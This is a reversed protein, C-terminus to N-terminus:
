SRTPEASSPNLPDWEGSAWPTLEQKVTARIEALASALSVPERREGWEYRFISYDHPAERLAASVCWLAMTLPYSGFEESATWVSQSGLRRFSLDKESKLKGPRFRAACKVAWGAAFSRPSDGHIWPQHAGADPTQNAELSRLVSRPGQAGPREEEWLDVAMRTIAILTRRRSDVGEREIAHLWQLTETWAAEDTDPHVGSQLVRVLRNPKLGARPTRTRRYAVARRINQIAAKVQPDHVLSELRPLAAAADAGLRGLLAVTERFRDVRRRPLAALLRDLGCQPSLALLARLAAESNPEDSDIAQEVVRIVEPNSPGLALAQLAAWRVRPQHDTVFSAVLATWEISRSGKGTAFIMALTERINEDRERILARRVFQTLRLKPAPQVRALAVAACLRVTRSPDDLAEVLTPMVSGAFGRTLGLAGAIRYRLRDRSASDRAFEEPHDFVSMLHRVGKESGHRHIGFVLDDGERGETRALAELWERANESFAPSIRILGYIPDQTM